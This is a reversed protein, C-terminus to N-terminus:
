LKSNRVNQCKDTTNGQQVDAPSQGFKDRDVQKVVKIAEFLKVGIHFVFETGKCSHASPDTLPQAM